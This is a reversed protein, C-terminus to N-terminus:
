ATWEDARDAIVLISRLEETELAAGQIRAKELLTGVDTLAAFEFRAGSKLFERVEATMRHQREIWQRDATPALSSVRSRGLPSAAYGRVVERLQEFELVRSSANKLPLPISVSSM